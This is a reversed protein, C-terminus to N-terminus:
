TPNVAHQPSVKGVRCPIVGGPIVTDRPLSMMACTERFLLITIDSAPSSLNSSASFSSSPSIFSTM